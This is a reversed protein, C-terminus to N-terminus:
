TLNQVQLYWKESIKLAEYLMHFFSKRWSNEKKVSESLGGKGGWRGFDALRSLTKQRHKSLPAKTISLYKIDSLLNRYTDSPTEM